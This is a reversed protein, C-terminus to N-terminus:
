SVIYFIYIYTTSETPRFRLPTAPAVVVCSSRSLSHSLPFSLSLSSVLRFHACACDCVCLVFVIYTLQTSHCNIYVDHISESESIEWDGRMAFMREAYRQTTQWDTHGNQSSPCLCVSSWVIYNEIYIYFEHAMAFTLSHFRERISTHMHTHQHTATDMACLGGEGWLGPSCLM